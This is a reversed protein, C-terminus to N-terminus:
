NYHKTFLMLEEQTTPSTIYREFQMELKQLLAISPTNSPLTIAQLTKFNFQKHFHNECGLAAELAYGKKTFVDLFAFGIDPFDLTDRKLIGCMGIPQQTDKLTVCMLGFGFETMMKILVSEIYNAAEEPTKINRDGINKIWGKSNLLEVIFVADSTTFNRMLLRETTITFDM